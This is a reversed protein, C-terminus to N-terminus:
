RGELLKGSSTSRILNRLSSRPHHSDKALTLLLRKDFPLSFLLSIRSMTSRGTHAVDGPMRANWLEVFLLRALCFQNETSVVNKTTHAKENIHEAELQSTLFSELPLPTKRWKTRAGSRPSVLQQPPGLFRITFRDRRFLSM